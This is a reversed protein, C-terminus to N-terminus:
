NFWVDKFSYGLRQLLTVDELIFEANGSMEQKFEITKGYTSVMNNLGVKVNLLKEGDMNPTESISEVLGKFQGWERSPYNELNLYVEMGEKLRGSNWIPLQCEAIVIGHQLPAVTLIHEESNVYQHVNMPKILSISGDMPSKISNVLEWDKILELLERRQMQLLRKQMPLDYAKVNSAESTNRSLGINTIAAMELESRVQQQVTRISNVYEQEKDYEAQSIVGKALLRNSRELNTIAIKVRHNQTLEKNKLTALLQRSKSYKLSDNQYQALHSDFQITKVYQMYDALFLAYQQQLVLGLSLDSTYYADLSTFNSLSVDDNDLIVKLIMVDEYSANTVLVALVEGKLVQKNQTVNVMGYQGSKKAIIHIPPNSSYVQIPGTLVDAYSVYSALIVFILLAIFSWTAGNKWVAKEAMLELKPIKRKWNRSDRYM